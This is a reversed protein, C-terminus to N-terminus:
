LYKLKTDLNCVAVQDRAFSHPVQEDSYSWIFFFGIKRSLMKEEILLTGLQQHPHLLYAASLYRSVFRGSVRLSAKSHVLLEHDRTGYSLHQPLGKDMSLRVKPSRSSNSVLVFTEKKNDVKFGTVYAELYSGKIQIPKRWSILKQESLIHVM